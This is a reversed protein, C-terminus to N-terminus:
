NRRKSAVVRSFVVTDGAAIQEAHLRAACVPAPGAGRNSYGLVAVLRLSM